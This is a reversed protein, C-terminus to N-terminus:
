LSSRRSLTGEAFPAALTTISCCATPSRPSTKGTCTPPTYVDGYRGELRECWGALCDARKAGHCDWAHVAVLATNEPVTGLESATM